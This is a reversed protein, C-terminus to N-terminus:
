ARFVDRKNKALRRRDQEQRQAEKIGDSYGVLYAGEMKKRQWVGVTIPQTTLELYESVRRRARQVLTTQEKGRM